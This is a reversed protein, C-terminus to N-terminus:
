ALRETVPCLDAVHWMCAHFPFFTFTHRMIHYPVVICISHEHFFDHNDSVQIWILGSDRQFAVQRLNSAYWFSLIISSLASLISMVGAGWSVPACNPSSLTISTASGQKALARLVSSCLDGDNHSRIMIYFLSSVKRYSRFRHYVQHM